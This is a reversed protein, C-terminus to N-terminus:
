TAVMIDCIVTVRTLEYLIGLPMTQQSVNDLDEDFDGATIKRENRQFAHLRVKRTPFMTQAFNQIDSLLFLRSDDGSRGRESSLLEISAEGKANAKIEVYYAYKSRISTEFLPLNGPFLRISLGSIPVREGEIALVDNLRRLREPFQSSFRVQELVGSEPLNQITTNAPYLILSREGPQGGPVGPRNEATM